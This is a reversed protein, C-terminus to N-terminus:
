RKAGRRVSVVEQDQQYCDPVRAAPDSCIPASASSLCSGTVCAILFAVVVWELWRTDGFAASVIDTVWAAFCIAALWDPLAAGCLRAVGTLAIATGFTAYNAISFWSHMPMRDESYVGTLIFSASAITGFVRVLVCLVHVARREGWSRGDLALFYGALGLGSLIGGLRYFIAGAPNLDNDGLDSLWNGIPGFPGPYLARSAVALALYIGVALLGSIVSLRQRTLRM